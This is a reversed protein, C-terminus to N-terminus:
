VRALKVFPLGGGVPRMLLPALISELFPFRPGTPAAYTTEIVDVREKVIFPAADPFLDTGNIVRLALEACAKLVPVPVYPVYGLLDSHRPFPFSQTETLPFGTFRSGYVINIFDSAKRLSAEKEELEADEWPLNGRLAHYNDAYQVSAYSEADILGTGDEHILSM